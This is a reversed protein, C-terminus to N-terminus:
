AADKPWRPDTAPTRIADEWAPPEGLEVPWWSLTADPAMFRHPRKHAKVFICRLPGDNAGSRGAITVGCRRDNPERFEDPQVTV